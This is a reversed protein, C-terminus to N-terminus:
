IGSLGKSDHEKSSGQLAVSTSPDLGSFSFEKFVLTAM